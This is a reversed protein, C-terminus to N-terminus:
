YNNNATAEILEAHWKTADVILVAFAIADFCLMTRTGPNSSRADTMHLYVQIGHARSSVDISEHAPLVDVM